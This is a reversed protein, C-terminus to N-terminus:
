KRVLKSGFFAIQATVTVPTSGGDNGRVGRLTNGSGDNTGAIDNFLTVSINSSAPIIQPRPFFFLRGPEGTYLDARVPKSQWDRDNTKFALRLNHLGPGSVAAPNTQGDRYFKVMNSLDVSEFNPTPANGVGNIAVGTVTTGVINSRSRVVTGTSFFATMFVALVEFDNSADIAVTDSGNANGAVGTIEAVYWFPYGVPAQPTRLAPVSRM